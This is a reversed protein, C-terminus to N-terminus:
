SSTGTMVTESSMDTTAMWRRPSFCVSSGIGRTSARASWASWIRSGSCPSAEVRHASRERRELDFVEHGHTVDRRHQLPGLHHAADGVLDLAIDDLETGVAPQHQELELLQDAADLVIAAQDGLVVELVGSSKSSIFTIASSPM